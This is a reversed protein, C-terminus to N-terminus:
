HEDPCVAPGCFQIVDPGISHIDSTTARRRRLENLLKASAIRADAATRRNELQSPRLCGTDRLRKACAKADIDAHTMPLWEDVLRHLLDDAGPVAADDANRHRRMVRVHGDTGVLLLQQLGRAVPEVTRQHSAPPIM